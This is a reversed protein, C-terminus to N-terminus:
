KLRPPIQEAQKKQRKETAERLLTFGASFAPIALLMGLPGAINGGICIAALVWIPPLNIKGGVVRPYILNGELQQLVILFVLFVLAKIFSVTYILLFGVAAGIYAGIFPILATVGVLVGIMLAYPLHLIGMGVACLSGLIMAEITQGAVFNSFAEYCVHAIHILNRSWPRPFWVRILYQFQRKLKEKQSLMYISFIIGMGISAAAKGARGTWDMIKERFVMASNQIWDTLISRIAAWDLDEQFMSGIVPINQILHMTEAQELRGLFDFIVDQIRGIIRLLEPLILILIGLLIGIVLALSLVLSLFRRRKKIRTKQIMWKEINRLPVNLILAFVIGLLIPALVHLIWLIGCAVADIHAIGLYILICIGAVGIVWKAAQHKGRNEFVMNKGM